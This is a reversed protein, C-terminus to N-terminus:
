LVIIKGTKTFKNNRIKYFYIGSNVLKIKYFSDQLSIRKIVRGSSDYIELVTPLSFNQKFKIYVIGTLSLNPFIKVISEDVTTQTEQTEVSVCAEYWKCPIGNVITWLRYYGQAYDSPPLVRTHRDDWSESHPMYMIEGGGNGQWNGGGIRVLSVLPHDNSVVHCHNGGDAESVGRFLRGKINMPSSIHTVSSYNTIVSQWIRKYGLGVDYQEISNLYGGDYGGIALVYPQLSPILVSAHYGRAKFSAANKWRHTGTTPDLEAAPDWIECSSLYGGNYGGSVLVLGSYLLVSNHAYRPTNLRGEERWNDNDPDYIECSNLPNGASDKGGIVLVKGCQLLVATHLARETKLSSVQSWSTGDWIECSNTPTGGTTEGGIVLVKGDLLLVATHLARPTTLPPITEWSNTSSNYIECSSLYGTSNKGGTILVKGDKLLTATHDFRAESMNGGNSWEETPVNFLECSSLPTGGNKGGTVLVKGSPLLTATHYARATNLSNTTLIRNLSYNFIECSKLTGGSNEGGVILVTTSCNSTHIIPLPTVTHARRETILSERGEWYDDSPDYIECKKTEDPGGAPAGGIVLVKGTQLIVASLHGRKVEMEDTFEWRQTSPDYIECTKNNRGGGIIMPKGSPLLVMGPTHRDSNNLTGQTYSWRERSISFLETRPDEPGVVLVNDDWPPPLLLGAFHIRGVNLDGVRRWGVGPEFIETVFRSSSGGGGVALVRGDPLLVEVGAYHHANTRSLEEVQDRTWDYFSYNYNIELHNIVLVRGDKLLTHPTRAYLDSFRAAPTWTGNYPNFRYNKHDSASMWHTSSMLVEGNPLLILNPHNRGDIGSPLSFTEWEGTSPDFIEYQLYEPDGLGGATMVRGDTLLAGGYGQKPVSIDGTRSWRQANVPLSFLLIIFIWREMM